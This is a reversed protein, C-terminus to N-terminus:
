VKLIKVAVRRRVPLEQEAVWVTGFGGEGIQERLKYPGIQEGAEEPKLRAFEAELQPSVAPGGQLYDGASNGARLLSHLEAKLQEDKGCAEDLFHERQAGVPLAKAENFVEILRKGREDPAPNM